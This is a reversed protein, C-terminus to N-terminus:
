RVTGEEFSATCLMENQRNRLPVTKSRDEAEKDTTKSPSDYTSPILGLAEQRRVSAGGSLQMKVDQEQQVCNGQSLTERHLGPQGPNWEM